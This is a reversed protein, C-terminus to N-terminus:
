AVQIQAPGSRRNYQKIANIIIDGLRDDAVTANVNVTINGMGLGRNGSLPVVAEPGAEGIVALTPSNVIGGEALRPINPTVPAGSLIRTVTEQIRVKIDVTRSLKGAIEDMRKMLKPTLQQLQADIGDVIKQASDVGTQYWRQAANMGVSEAATQASAVLANIGEPGTILEEGGKVLEAAIKSGAEAGADLVYKLADQSLGRQLLINLNGAYTKVATVQDRLNQIFTKGNEEILKFADAFSLGALVSTKVETVFDDFAKKADALKGKATELADTLGKKVGEAFSATEKAAGSAADRSKKVEENWDTIADKSNQRAKFERQHQAELRALAGNTALTAVGSKNMASNFEDAKDISKDLESQLKKQSVIYAALAAGAAAVVAIGVGTAVQVATFSTALAFNIAKTILAVARYAALATNVTYIVGALTALGAGLAIVVGANNSIITILTSLFTALKEAIPLLKAGIEEQLEGFRMQLNKFRGATTDAANAAAGGTSIAIQRMIQDFNAGNKTVDRLSPDLKALATTQGNYAKAIADSTTALDNNTAVALDQAIVLLQQSTKLDGTATVLNGLAPRLEDDATATLESLKGIFTETQAIQDKTAGTQRQLVGALQDQAAADDIAAKTAFGAAAALGAMAAAAPLAAKQLAFQAKAGAGELSKFEEIAKQIGKADFESVIPISVAM